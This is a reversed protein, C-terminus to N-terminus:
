PSRRVEHVWDPVRYQAMWKEAVRTARRVWGVWDELIKEGDTTFEFRRKTNIIQRLMKRQATRLTQERKRTLTWSVCGYLVSPQVVSKFFRLRQSLSYSPTTLEDRYMAFKAWGKSLRNNLETDHLDGLCLLRGLYMTSESDELIEITKGEVQVNKLSTKSGFGNLLMKTKTEHIELGFNAAAIILDALM